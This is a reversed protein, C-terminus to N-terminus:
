ACAHLGGESVHDIVIWGHERLRAAVQAHRLLAPMPADVCEIVASAPDWHPLVCVEYGCNARGDLRCTIARVDHQLEWRLIPSPRRPTDRITEPTM